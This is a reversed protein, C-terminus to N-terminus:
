CKLQQTQDCNSNKLKMLKLKQIGDCNSNKLKMVIGTVKGQLPAQYIIQSLRPPIMTFQTGLSTVEWRVGNVM